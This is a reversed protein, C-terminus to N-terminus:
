QIETNDKASYNERALKTFMKAPNTMSVFTGNKLSIQKANAQTLSM